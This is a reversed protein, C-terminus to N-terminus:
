QVKIFDTNVFKMMIKVIFIISMLNNGYHPLIILLYSKFIRSHM